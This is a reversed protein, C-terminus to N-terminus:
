PLTVRTFSGSAALYYGCWVCNEEYPLDNLLHCEPNGCVIKEHNPQMLELRDGRISLVDFIRAEVRAGGVPGNNRKVEAVLAPDELELVVGAGDFTVRGLVGDVPEEGAGALAIGTETTKILASQGPELMIQSRPQLNPGTHKVILPTAEVIRLEYNEIQITEGGKLAVEGGKVLNGAVTTGNSSDDVYVLGSGRQELRGHIRSITTYGPDLLIHNDAQPKKGIELPLPRSEVRREGTLRDIVEIQVRDGM